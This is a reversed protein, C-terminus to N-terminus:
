MCFSLLAEKEKNNRKEHFLLELRVHGECTLQGPVCRSLELICFPFLYPRANARMNGGDTAPSPFKIQLHAWVGSLVRSVPSAAPRVALEGAGVAERKARGILLKM